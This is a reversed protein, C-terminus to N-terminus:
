LSSRGNEDIIEVNHAVIRAVADLFRLSESVILAHMSGCAPAALIGQGGSGGVGYAFGQALAAQHARVAALAASGPGPDGRNVGVEAPRQLDGPDAIVAAVGIALGGGAARPRVQAALTRVDRFGARDPVLDRAAAPRRVISRTREGAAVAADVAVEVATM